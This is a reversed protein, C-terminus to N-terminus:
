VLKLSHAMCLDIGTDCMFVVVMQTYIAFLFHKEMKKVVNEEIKRNKKPMKYFPACYMLQSLMVLIVSYFQKLFTVM